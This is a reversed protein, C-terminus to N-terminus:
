HKVSLIEIEDDKYGIEGFAPERPGYVNKWHLPIKDIIKATEAHWRMIAEGHANKFKESLVPGHKGYEIITSKFKWDVAPCNYLAVFLNQVDEEIQAFTREDNHDIMSKMLMSETM